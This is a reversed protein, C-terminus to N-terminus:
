AKLGRYRIAAELVRACNDHDHFPYFADARERYIEEMVCGRRMAACIAEVVSREDRCVPGFAETEYDMGGQDYQPPLEDPHYYVLPKRMFAFDFQIGSHDTVMLSSECMMREYSVDGRAGPIIEVGEPASFDEAQPSLIPHLLFIIRYGTERACRILDPNNILSNYIRFYASDKFNVSYEHWHGKRNTGATVGRRWTPTILIQRRDQNILGDYRPAGTLLLVDKQYGYVPRELNRIEYPSVCFYLKTDDFLRNQYQAIKQITLGHQLCFVDYNLLGRFYPELQPGFGCYQKVDVRTAFVCKAHLTTLKERISNFPLLFRRCGAAALRRYDAADRNVVYYIRLNRKKQALVHRFFYEGNDGAKFLQDFTIWIERRRFFPRTILWLIRLFISKVARDREGRHKLFDGWLKWELKLASFRSRREIHIRKRAADYTMIFDSFQWYSHPFKNVLRSQMRSFYIPLQFSAERFRLFFSLEGSKRLEQLSFRFQFTYDKYVPILFYKELSYIATTKAKKYEGGFSAYCAADGPAFVYANDVRGDVVLEKTKPFYDMCLINARLTRETDLIADSVYAVYRSGSDALIAPFLDPKGYKIRLFILGMYKPLLRMENLNYACLIRDDIRRAAARVCDLFKQLSDGSIVNNCRDNRNCAFRVHIQYLVMTKVFPSGPHKKLYPLYVDRLAHVYWDPQFKRRYNYYDNEFPERSLLPLDTLMYDKGCFISHILFLQDADERAKEHFRNKELIQREILYGPLFMSFRAYHSNSHHYDRPQFPLYPQPLGNVIGLPYFSWLAIHINGKYARVKERMKRLDSARLEVALTTYNMYDADAKAKNYCVAYNKGPLAAVRVSKPFRERFKRCIERTQESGAADLLCVRLHKELMEADDSFRELWEELGDAHDIFLNVNCFRM